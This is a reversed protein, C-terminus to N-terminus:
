IVRRFFSVPPDITLRDYLHWGRQFFVEAQAASPNAFAVRLSRVPVDREIKDLVADLTKPGFPNYFYLATADAYDFEEAAGHNVAFSSTRKGRVRNLNQVALDCFGGSYEIGIVRDCVYRAACCLMRGKGCGVDVLVDSPYLELRNLIKHTNIYSLTSYYFSDPKDVHILGRTKIGLYTEYLRDVVRQVLVM